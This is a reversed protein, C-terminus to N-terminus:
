RKRAASLSSTPISDVVFSLMATVGEATTATVTRQGAVSDPAFMVRAIGTSDTLSSVATLVDGSDGTAIAWNVLYNPIPNGFADSLKVELPTPAANALLTQPDTADGIMASPAAPVLTADFEFPAISPATAIVAATGIASGATYAVAAHGSADTTTTAASVSGGGRAVSWAISVGAVPLGDSSTVLVSLSDPLMAGVRSIQGVGSVPIVNAATAPATTGTTSKDNCAALALSAAAFPLIMSTRRGILSYMIVFEQQM